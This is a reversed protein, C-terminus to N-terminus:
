VISDLLSWILRDAGYFCHINERQNMESDGGRVCLCSLSYKDFLNLGPCYLDPIM